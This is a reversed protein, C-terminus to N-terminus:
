KTRTVTYTKDIKSKYVSYKRKGKYFRSERSATARLSSEECDAYNLEFSHDKALRRIKDSISLDM